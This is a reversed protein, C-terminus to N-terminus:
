VRERGKAGKNDMREGAAGRTAQQQGPGSAQPAGPAQRAQQGLNELLKAQYEPSYFRSVEFPFLVNIEAIHQSVRAQAATATPSSTHAKPAGSARGRRRFEGTCEKTRAEAELQLQQVREFGRSKASAERAARDRSLVLALQSLVAELVADPLSPGSCGCYVWLVSSCLRPFRFWWARDVHLSTVLESSV